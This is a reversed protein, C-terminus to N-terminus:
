KKAVLLEEQLQFKSDEGLTRKEFVYLNNLGLEFTEHNILEFGCSTFLLPTLKQEFCYHQEFCIGEALKLRILVKLITDVHPSPVTIILRGGTRLQNFCAKAFEVQSATPIHELVALLTIVDFTKDKLDPCPFSAPFLSYAETRLEHTLLPDLGVGEGLRRGLVRFLKGDSCGIDLIRSNDEILSSVKKIRIRRIFKDLLTM